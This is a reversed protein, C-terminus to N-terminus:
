PVYTQAVGRPREPTGETNTNKAIDQGNRDVIYEVHGEDVM